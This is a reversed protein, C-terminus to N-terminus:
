IQQQGILYRSFAHGEGYLLLFIYLPVVEGMVFVLPFYVAIIFHWNFAIFTTIYM